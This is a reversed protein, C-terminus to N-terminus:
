IRSNAFAVRTGWELLTSTCDFRNLICEILTVGNTNKSAQIADALESSSKVKFALNTPSNSSGNSKSDSNDETCISFIDKLKHYNWNQIDNYANDHIQVEVTYGANNLLFIICNVKKRIVTSLEQATRCM